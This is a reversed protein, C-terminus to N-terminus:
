PARIHHRSRCVCRSHEPLLLMYPVYLPLDLRVGACLRVRQCHALNAANGCAGSAAEPKVDKSRPSGGRGEVGGVGVKSVSVVTAVM